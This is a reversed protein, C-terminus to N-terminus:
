VAPRLATAMCAVLLPLAAFGIVLGLAAYSSVTVIVGGLVGGLVGGVNMALDSLGQAAPRVRLPVSESLLASGSVLTASWGVGLITLGAGLQPAGHSPAMGAIGAAAVVLAAGVTLVPVRGLRDAMWGFLPSAAYMGALHVSIVIGVVAVSAGGHNMHVPTMSMMGVMAAHCLAMAAVALWAQPPLNRWAALGPQGPAQESRGVV